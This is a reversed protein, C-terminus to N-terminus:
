IRKNKFFLKLKSSCEKKMVGAIIKPHHNFKTKNQEYFNISSAKNMNTSAGIVIKSVRANIIACFCMICPELTSYLVSENLRYNKLKKCASRICNIEAHATPDNNIISSNFSSSIIKNNIVLISGVPVEGFKEAKKAEEIALSMFFDHNEM